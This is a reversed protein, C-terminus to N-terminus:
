FNITSQVADAYSGVGVGQGAPVRGYVTLPIPQISTATGGVTSTTNWVATRAPDSFLEYRLRQAGSAM